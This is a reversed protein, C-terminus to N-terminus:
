PIATINFACHTGSIDAVCGVLGMGSTTQAITYGMIKCVYMCVYTYVYMSAANYQNSHSRPTLTWSILCQFPFVMANNDSLKQEQIVNDRVTYIEGTTRDRLTFRWRIHTHIYTHVHVPRCHATIYLVPSSHVSTHTCYINLGVTLMLICIYMRIYTCIYTCIRVPGCHARSYTQTNTVPPVTTSM